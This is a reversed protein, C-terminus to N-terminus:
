PATELLCGLGFSVSGMESFNTVHWSDSMVSVSFLTFECSIARQHIRCPRSVDRSVPRSIIKQVYLKKKVLVRSSQPNTFHCWEPVQPFHSTNCVWGSISSPKPPNVGDHRSYERGRCFATKVTTPAIGARVTIPGTSCNATTFNKPVFAIQFQSEKMWYDSRFEHPTVSYM